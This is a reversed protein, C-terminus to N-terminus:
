DLLGVVYVCVREQVRIFLLVSYKESGTTVAQSSMKGQQSVGQVSKYNTNLTYNDAHPEKLREILVQSFVCGSPCVELVERQHAEPPFPSM